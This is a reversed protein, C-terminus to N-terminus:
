VAVLAVELRTQPTMGVATLNETISLHLYPTLRSYRDSLMILAKCASILCACQCKQTLLSEPICHPLTHAPPPTPPPSTSRFREESQRSWPEFGSRSSSKSPWLAARWVVPGRGGHKLISVNRVCTREQAGAIATAPSTRTAPRTVSWQFLWGFVANNIQFM